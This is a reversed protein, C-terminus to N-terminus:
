VENGLHFCLAKATAAAEQFTLGNAGLFDGGVPDATHLTLVPLGEPLLTLVPDTFRPNLQELSELVNILAM